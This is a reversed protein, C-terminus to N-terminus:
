RRTVGPVPRRPTLLRDLGTPEKGPAARELWPWRLGGRYDIRHTQFRDGRQILLELAAGSKAATVASKIVDPSYATGNVAVVKAGSVIGANSAPSDWQVASAKGDKDLTLGLSHTLALERSKAM